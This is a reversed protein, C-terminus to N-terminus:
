LEGALAERVRRVLQEVTFPKQLLGSDPLLVGQTAVAERSFGTMFLVRLAPRRERLRRALEAGDMAPMVVDTLLLDITGDHEEAIRLAEEGDAAELVEYGQATLIRRVPGRVGPEDDALLVTLVPVPTRRGAHRAPSRTPERRRNSTHLSPPSWFNQGARALTLDSM